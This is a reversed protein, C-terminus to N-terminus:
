ARYAGQRCGEASRPPHVFLGPKVWQLCNCFCCLAVSCAVMAGTQATTIRPRVMVADFPPVKPQREVGTSCSAKRRLSRTM